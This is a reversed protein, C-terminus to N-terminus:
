AYQLPTNTPRLMGKAPPVLGVLAADARGKKGQHIKDCCGVCSCAFGQTHSGDPKARVVRSSSSSGVLDSSKRKRNIVVGDMESSSSPSNEEMLVEDKVPESASNLKVLVQERLVELEQRSTIFSSMGPPVLQMDKLSDLDLSASSLNGTRRLFTEADEDKRPGVLSLDEELSSASEWSGQRLLFSMADEDPHIDLVTEEAEKKVPEQPEMESHIPECKLSQRLNAVYQEDKVGICRALFSVFDEEPRPYEQSTVARALREREVGGERTLFSYFDEYPHLKSAKMNEPPCGALDSEDDTVVSSSKSSADSQTSLPPSRDSKPEARSAKSTSRKTQESKVQNGGSGESPPVNCSDRPSTQSSDEQDSYTQGSPRLKNTAKAGDYSPLTTEFLKKSLVPKSGTKFLDDLPDTKLHVPFDALLEFLDESCM